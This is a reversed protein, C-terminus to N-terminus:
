VKPNKRAPPEVLHVEGRAVVQHLQSFEVLLQPHRQGARGLAQHEVRARDVQQIRVVVAANARLLQDGRRAPQARHQAVSARQELALVLQHERVQRGAFLPPPQPQRRPRHEVHHALRGRGRQRHGVHHRRSLGEVRPGEVAIAHHRRRRRSVQRRPLQSSFHDVAGAAHGVSAPRHAEVLRGSVGEELGNGLMCGPEVQAGRLHAHQTLGRRPHAVHNLRHAGLNVVVEGASPQGREVRARRRRHVAVLLSRATRSWPARARSAASIAARGSARTSAPRASGSVLACSFGAQAERTASKAALASGM